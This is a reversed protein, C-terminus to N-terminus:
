KEIHDVLKTIAEDAEDPADQICLTDNLDILKTELHEV